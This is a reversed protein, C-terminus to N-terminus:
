WSVAFGASASTSHPRVLRLRQREPCAETPKRGPRGHGAPCIEAPVTPPQTVVPQGFLRAERPHIAYIAFNVHLITPKAKGHKLSSRASALVVVM